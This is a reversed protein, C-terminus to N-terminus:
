GHTHSFYTMDVDVEGFHNELDVIFDDDEIDYKESGESM